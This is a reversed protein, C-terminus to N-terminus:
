GKRKKREPPNLSRELRGLLGSRQDLDDMGREVLEHSIQEGREDLAREAASPRRPRRWFRV